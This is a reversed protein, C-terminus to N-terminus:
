KRAKPKAKLALKRAVVPTKVARTAAPKATAKVPELEIINKFKFSRWQRGDKTLEQVSLGGNVHADDMDETTFKMVRTKGNTEKTFKVKYTDGEKNLKKLVQAKTMTNTEM